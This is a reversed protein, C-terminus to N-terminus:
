QASRVSYVDVATSPDLIFIKKPDRSFTIDRQHGLSPFTTPTIITSGSWDVIQDWSRQTKSRQRPLEEFMSLLFRIRVDQRNEQGDDDRGFEEGEKREIEREKIKRTRATGGGDADTDVDIGLGKAFDVLERRSFIEDKKLMGAVIRRQQDEEEEHLRELEERHRRFRDLM